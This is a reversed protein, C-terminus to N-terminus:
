RPKKASEDPPETALSSEVDTPVPIECLQDRAIAEFEPKTLSFGEKFALMGIAPAALFIGLFFFVEVIVLIRAWTCEPRPHVDGFGLTVFTASSWYISEVGIEVVDGIEVSDGNDKKTLTTKTFVTQQRSASDLSVANLSLYLSAFVIVASLAAGVVRLWWRLMKSQKYERAAREYDQLLDSIGKEYERDGAIRKNRDLAELEGYRDGLFYVQELMAKFTDLANISRGVSTPLAAYFEVLIMLLAMTSLLLALSVATWVIWSTGGPVIAVCSAVLALVFASMACRLHVRCARPSFRITIRKWISDTIRVLSRCSLPM